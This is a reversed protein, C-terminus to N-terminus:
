DIEIDPAGTSRDVVRGDDVRLVTPLTDIDFRAAIDPHREVDVVVVTCNTTRARERVPTILSECRESWDASFELLVTGTSDLVRELTEEDTVHILESRWNDNSTVVM